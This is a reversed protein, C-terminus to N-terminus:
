LVVLAFDILRSIMLFNISYEGFFPKQAINVIVTKSIINNLALDINIDRVALWLFRFPKDLSDPTIQTKNLNKTSHLSMCFTKLPSAAGLLAFYLLTKAYFRKAWVCRITKFIFFVEYTFQKNFHEYFSFGFYSLGISVM